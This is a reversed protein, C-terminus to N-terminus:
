LFSSRVFNVVASIDKTAAAGIGFSVPGFAHDFEFPINSFGLRHEDEVRQDPANVSKLEVAKATRIRELEAQLRLKVADISLPTSSTSITDNKNCFVLVPLSNTRVDQHVLIDHLLVASKRAASNFTSVDLVFIICRARPIYTDISSTCIRPHGPIDIWRNAKSSSPPPFTAENVEMSPVCEFAKMSSESTSIHAYQLTKFLTTKGPSPEDKEGSIGVILVTDRQNRSYGLVIHVTLLITLILGGFTFFIARLLASESPPEVGFQQMQSALFVAIALAYPRISDIM